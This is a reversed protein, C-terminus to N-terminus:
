KATMLIAPIVARKQTIYDTYPANVETLGTIVFGQKEFAALVTILSSFTSSVTFETIGNKKLYAAIPEIERDWIVDNFDIRDNDADKSKVYAWYLAPVIGLDTIKMDNGLELGKKIATEIAKIELM